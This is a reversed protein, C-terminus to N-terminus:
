LRYPLFLRLVYRKETCGDCFLKRCRERASAVILTYRMKPGPTKLRCHHCFAMESTTTRRRKEPQADLAPASIAHVRSGDEDSEHDDDSDEDHKVRHAHEAEDPFSKTRRKKQVRTSFSAGVSEPSHVVGDLAIARSKGKGKGMGSSPVFDDDSTNEAFLLGMVDEEEEEDNMKYDEDVTRSLEVRRDAPSSSYDDVKAPSLGGGGLNSPDITGDGAYEDVGADTSASAGGLVRTANWDVWREGGSWIASLSTLDFDSGRESSAPLSTGGAPYAAADNHEPIAFGLM